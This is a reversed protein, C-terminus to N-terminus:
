TLEKQNRSQWNRAYPHLPAAGNHSTPVCLQSTDLTSRLAWHTLLDQAPSEGARPGSAPWGHAVSCPSCSRRRRAFTLAPASQWRRWIATLQMPHRDPSALVAGLERGRLSPPRHACLVHAMAPITNALAHFTRETSPKLGQLPYCAEWMRAIRDWQPHPYLADGIACSLKVRVM